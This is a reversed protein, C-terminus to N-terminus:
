AGGALRRKVLRSAAAFDMRGAHRKKLAAMARGADKLSRAGSDAIAEAIARATESEDLPQPLYREIHRIEAAERAALGDSGERRYIAESDRRQRVMGSLMDLIEADGIEEEAGADRAAADRDDLAALILRLTAARVAADARAAATNGSEATEVARKLDGALNTRLVTM